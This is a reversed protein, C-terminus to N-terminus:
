VNLQRLVKLKFNRKWMIWWATQKHLRRPYDNLMEPILNYLQVWNPTAIFSTIEGFLWDWYEHVEGDPTRSDAIVLSMCELAEFLRFSDLVVAGSPAPAIKAQALNTYYEEFSLGQTFGETEVLNINFMDVEKIESLYRALEERRQHTIQGAFFVANNKVVPVPMASLIEQMHQPYGTGLRNFRDHKDLHPNQVWIEINKHNILDANYDAEEDGMLFLVVRGIKSLEKNINKELGAHHRAPIIVIAREDKPLKSVNEIDFNNDVLFDKLFGFDWQDAINAEKNLSLLYAKM